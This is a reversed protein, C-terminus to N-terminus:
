KLTANPFPPTLTEPEQRCVDEDYKEVRHQLEGLGIDVVVMGGSGKSYGHKVIVEYVTMKSREAELM